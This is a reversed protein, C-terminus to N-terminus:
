EAWPCGTRSPLVAGTLPRDVYRVQPRDELPAGPSGREYSVAEVLLGDGPPVDIDHHSQVKFTYGKLYSFVGYGHGRFDLRVDLAHAGDAVPGDFVLDPEAADLDKDVDACLWLPQQDIRIEARVLKFTPGMTDRFTLALRSETGLSRAQRPQAGCASLVGALVIATAVGM